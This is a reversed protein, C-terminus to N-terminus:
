WGTDATYHFQLSTGTPNATNSYVASIGQENMQTNGPTIAVNAGAFITMANITGDLAYITVSSQAKAMTCKFPVCVPLWNPNNVNTVIGCSGASGINAGPRDTYAYSKTYYRQCRRLNTDFDLDMLQTCNPGPEHQVFSLWFYNGSPQASFVDQGQVGNYDINQWTGLKATPCQTNSGCVLSIDMVYGLNGPDISWTPGSPWVPINPLTILQFSAAAATFTCLYALSYTFAPDHLIVSFKFPSVPASCLISISHTGGLLERMMPGEINTRFFAYDGAAATAQSTTIGVGLIHSGVYQTTGPVPVQGSYWNSYYSATAQNTYFSWRDILFGGSNGPGIAPTAGPNRQNV